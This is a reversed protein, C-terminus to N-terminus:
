HCNGTGSLLHELVAQELCSSATDPSVANPEREVFVDSMTTQGTHEACVSLISTSCFRTTLHSSHDRGTWRQALLILRFGLWCEQAYETDNGGAGVRAVADWLLDEEPYLPYLIEGCQM